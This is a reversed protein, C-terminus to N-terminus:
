DDIKHIEQDAIKALYNAAKGHIPLILDPAIEILPILVFARFIMRPHPIQLLKSEIIKDGYLLLDLDLARPANQYSRLRGFANEIKFLESLLDEPLLAIKIMAVANIYELHEDTELVGIPASKYLSSAKIFRSQPLNQLSKLAAKIQLVPEGLNAGLAIFATSSLLEM